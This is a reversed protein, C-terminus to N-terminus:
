LRARMLLDALYSDQTARQLDRLAQGAESGQRLMLAEPGPGPGRPLGATVPETPRNTPQGLLGPGGQMQQAAALAQRYQDDPSPGPPAVPENPGAAATPPVANPTAPSPASRAQPAPMARQLAAQEVGAGYMQGAVPSVAQAKEGSMTTRAKRPM